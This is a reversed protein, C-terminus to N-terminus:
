FLERPFEKRLQAKRERDTLLEPRRLEERIRAEERVARLTARIGLTGCSRVLRAARRIRGGTGSM